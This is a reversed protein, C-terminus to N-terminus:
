DNQRKLGLFNCRASACAGSESKWGPDSARGPAATGNFHAAVQETWSREAGRESVSHLGAPPIRRGGDSRARRRGDAPERGAQKNTRHRRGGKGGPGAGKSPPTTQPPPPRGHALLPLGRAATAFLKDAFEPAYAENGVESPPPTGFSAVLADVAARLGERTGGSAELVHLLELRRTRTALYEETKTRGSPSHKNRDGGLCAQLLLSASPPSSPPARGSSVVGGSGGARASGGGRASGTTAVLSGDDKGGVGGSAKALTGDLEDLRRLLEDGPHPYSPDALRALAASRPTLQSTAAKSAKVRGGEVIGLETGVERPGEM